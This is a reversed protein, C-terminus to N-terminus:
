VLNIEMPKEGDFLKTDFIIGAGLRVYGEGDGSRTLLLMGLSTEDDEGIQAPRYELTAIHVVFVLTEKGLLCYQDGLSIWVKEKGQEDHLLHLCGNHSFDVDQFMLQRTSGYQAIFGEGIGRERQGVTYVGELFKIKVTKGSFKLNKEQDLVVNAIESRLLGLSYGGNELGQEKLGLEPVWSPSVIFGEEWNVPLKGFAFKWPIM